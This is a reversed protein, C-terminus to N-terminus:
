KRWKYTHCDYKYKLPGRAIEELVQGREYPEMKNKYEDTERVAFFKEIASILTFKLKLVGQNFFLEFAEKCDIYSTIFDSVFCDGYAIICSGTYPIMTRPSRLSAAKGYKSGDDIIVTQSKVGYLMNKVVYYDATYGRWCATTLDIEGNHEPMVFTACSIIQKGKEIDILTYQKKGLYMFDSMQITM